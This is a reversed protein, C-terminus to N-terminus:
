PYCYDGQCSTHGIVKPWFNAISKQPINIAGSKEDFIKEPINGSKYMEYGWLTAGELRDREETGSKPYKNEQFIHILASFM